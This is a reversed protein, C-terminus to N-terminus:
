RIFLLERYKPLPWYEDDVILELKDVNYRIDNLYCFIKTSYERAKEREDEIKNAVKRAEIMEAVKAKICSVHQSITRILELRAGALEKYEKEGFLEKLGNVNEILETQYRIAVPVIQSLVLDGLVGAEFTNRIGGSPFSSADPEQQALLNGSFSEIVIGDENFDIFTDNKEATGETLPQFWHTYHTAGMEIAWAKMGSAVQDAIKRDIRTGMEIAEMVFIYAEGSLYKKMKQKDFVNIEFYDSILAKPKKYITPERHFAHELANFRIAAM